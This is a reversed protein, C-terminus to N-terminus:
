TTEQKRKAKERKRFQRQRRITACVSSCYRAWYTGPEFEKGCERCKKTQMM